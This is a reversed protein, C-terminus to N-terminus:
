PGTLGFCALSAKGDIRKFYIHHNSETMQWAFMKSLTKSCLVGQLPYLSFHFLGRSSELSGLPNWAPLPAPFHACSSFSDPGQTCRVPNGLEEGLM